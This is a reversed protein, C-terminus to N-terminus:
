AATPKKSWTKAAATQKLLSAKSGGLFKTEQKEGQLLRNYAVHAGPNGPDRRVADALLPYTLGNRMMLRVLPRLVRRAAKVLAAPSFPVSHEPIRM